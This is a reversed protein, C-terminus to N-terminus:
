RTSRIATAGGCGALREPRRRRRRQRLGHGGRPTSPRCRGDPSAIGGESVVTAPPCAPRQDSVGGALAMDCDHTLLSRCALHVAVLSTSCATNVNVGPRALDLKYSVRTSLFDKRQRHRVPSPGTSGRPRRESTLNRAPLREHRAPSSASRDAIGIRTPAPTSSRRSACELLVPAASRHDTRARRRSASLAICRVPRCRRSGALARVYDSACSHGPRNRCGAVRRGALAHHLRRRRAPQSWFCRLEGRGSVPRRAWSRWM